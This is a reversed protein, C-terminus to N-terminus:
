SLLALIRHIKLHTGSLTQDLFVLAM